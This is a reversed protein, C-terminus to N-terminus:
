NLWVSDLICSRILVFDCFCWSFRKFGFEVFEISLIISDSRNCFCFRFFWFSFSDSRFFFNFFSRHLSLFVQLILLIVVAEFSPFLHFGSSRRRFRFGLEERETIKERNTVSRVSWPISYLIKLYIYGLKYAVLIHRTNHQTVWRRGKKRTKLEV